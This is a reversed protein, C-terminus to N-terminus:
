RGISKEFAQRRLWHITFMAADFAFLFAGQLIVSRGTGVLGQKDDLNGKTILYAGGLMYAVDLAGNVLYLKEANHDAALTDLLDNEERSESISGFYGFVAITGNVLNWAANTLHFARQPDEENTLLGVTAWGFNGLAWAGLVLMGYRNTVTRAANEDALMSRTVEDVQIIPSRETMEEAEEKAEVGADAPESPEDQGTEEAGPADDSEGGSREPIDQETEEVEPSSSEEAAQTTADGEEQAVVASGWCLSFAILTPVLLSRM